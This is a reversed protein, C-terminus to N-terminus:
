DEYVPIAGDLGLLLRLAAVCAAKDPYNGGSIAVKRHGADLLYWRWQGLADQYIHFAM